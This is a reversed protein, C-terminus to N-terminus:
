HAVLGPAAQVARVFGDVDDPSFITTKSNSIVVVRKAGNTVYWTCRGLAQTRFLGYYGFLGGSGFLRIGGRFDDPTAPRVVWLGHLSVRADGIPRQIAIEGHSVVYGRPSYAYSFGVIAASAIALIPNRIVISALLLGGVVIGTLVKTTWDYSVAFRGEGPNM